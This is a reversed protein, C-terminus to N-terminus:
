ATQSGEDPFVFRIADRIAASPPGNGRMRMKVLSNPHLGMLPTANRTEILPVSRQREKTRSALLNSRGAHVPLSSASMERRRHDCALSQGDLAVRDARGGGVPEFGAVAGRLRRHREEM